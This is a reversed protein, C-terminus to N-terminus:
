NGFVKCAFCINFTFKSTCTYGCRSSYGCRVLVLAHLTVNGMEASVLNAKWYSSEISTNIKFEFLNFQYWIMLHKGRSKGKNGIAPVSTEALLQPLM